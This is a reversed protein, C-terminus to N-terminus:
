VVAEAHRVPCQKLRRLGPCLGTYRNRRHTQIRSVLPVGKPSRVARRHPHREHAGATFWSRRVVIGVRRRRVAGLSRPGAALGTCAARWSAVALAVHDVDDIPGPPSVYNNAWVNGPGSGGGYGGGASDARRRCKPKGGLTLTDPGIRSLDVLIPATEAARGEQQAATEIPDDTRVRFVVFGRLAGSAASAGKTVAGGPLTSARALFLQLDDHSRDTGIYETRLGVM